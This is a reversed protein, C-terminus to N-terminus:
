DSPCKKKPCVTYRETTKEFGNRETVGKKERRAAPVGHVSTGSGLRFDRLENEFKHINGTVKDM